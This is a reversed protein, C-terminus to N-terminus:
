EAVVEFLPPDLVARKVACTEMARVVAARYKEPFEPPLTLAIRVKALRHREADRETSLALAMGDTALGREQCFRLAYFGACTALSALFLEFPAPASGFGHPAPQDTRVTHGRFEANVAVGGPFSVTMEM